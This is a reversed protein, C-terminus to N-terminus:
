KRCHQSRFGGLFRSPSLNQNRPEPWALKKTQVAPSPIASEKSGLHGVFLRYNSPVGLMPQTLADLAKWPCPLSLITACDGRLVRRSAPTVSFRLIGISFDSLATEGCRVRRRVGEHINPRVGARRDGTRLKGPLRMPGGVDGRKFAWAYQGDELPVRHRSAPPRRKRYRVVTTHGM